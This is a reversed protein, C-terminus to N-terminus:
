CVSCSSRLIIIDAGQCQPIKSVIWSLLLVFALDLKIEGLDGAHQLGAMNMDLVNREWFQEESTQMGEVAVMSANASREVCKDDTWAPDCVTWPLVSRFCNFLYYLCYAMIQLYRWNGTNPHSIDDSSSQGPLTYTNFLCSVVNYYIAVILSIIVMAWGIGVGCPLMETWIQLPGVQGFQGLAAEMFYM